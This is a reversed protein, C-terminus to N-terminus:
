NTSFNRSNIVAMVVDQKQNIYLTLKICNVDEHRLVENPTRILIILIIMERIGPNTLSIQEYPM